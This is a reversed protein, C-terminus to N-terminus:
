PSPERLAAGYGDDTHPPKIRMMNDQITRADIADYQRQTGIFQIQLIGYAYSISAVLGSKNGGGINPM